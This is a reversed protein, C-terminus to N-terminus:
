IFLAPFDLALDIVLESAGLASPAHQDCEILTRLLGRLQDGQFAITVAVHELVQRAVATGLDDGQLLSGLGSGIAGALFPQAALGAGLLGAGAAGSGALGLILPLAM